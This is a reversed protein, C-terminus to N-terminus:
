KEHNPYMWALEPNPTLNKTTDTAEANTSDWGILLSNSSLKVTGSATTNAPLKTKQPNLKEHM